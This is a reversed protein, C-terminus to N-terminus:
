PLPIFVPSARVFAVGLQGETNRGWSWLTGDSRVALTHYSQRQDERWARNEEVTLFRALCQLM